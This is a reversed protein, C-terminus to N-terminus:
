EDDLGLLNGAKSVLDQFDFPKGLYDDAGMERAKQRVAETLQGSVVLVKPPPVVPHSKMDRCVRFGDVGPLKLDLIVLHPRFSLFKQGAEFGDRATDLDCDWEEQKIAQSIVRCIEPEDDVILIRPRAARLLDDPVPMHYEKLFALLADQTIRRHGGPTKYAKLKGDDVWRIVTTSDVACHRAVEHTTYYREEM